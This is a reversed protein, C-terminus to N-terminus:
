KQKFWVPGPQPTGIHESFVFHKNVFFGIIFVVIIAILQAIAKSWQHGEVLYSTISLNVLMLCLNVAIFRPLHGRTAFVIAGNLLYSSMMGAVYAIVIAVRYDIISSLFLFLGYSVSTNVVGNIGYLIFKKM